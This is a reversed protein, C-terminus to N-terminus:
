PDEPVVPLFQVALIYMSVIKLRLLFHSRNYNTSVYTSNSINLNPVVQFGLYDLVELGALYCLHFQPCHGGLYDLVALTELDM